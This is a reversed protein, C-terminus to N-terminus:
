KEGKLEAVFAEYGKLFARVVKVVENMKDAFTVVKDIVQIKEKM